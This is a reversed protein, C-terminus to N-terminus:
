EEFIDNPLDGMQSERIAYAIDSGVSWRSADGHCTKYPELHDRLSNWDEDDAAGAPPCVTIRGGDSLFRDLEAAFDEAAAVRARVYANQM